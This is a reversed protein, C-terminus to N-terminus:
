RVKRMERKKDTKAKEETMLNRAQRLEYVEYIKMM